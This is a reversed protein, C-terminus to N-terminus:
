VLIRMALWVALGGRAWWAITRAWNTFILSDIRALDYPESVLRGHLPGYWIVTAVWATALILGAVLAITKTAGDPARLWLGLALLVEAPAFLLLPIGVSRGHSSVYDVFELEAVKRFQPYVVFQITTMFGVMALTFVLHFLAIRRIGVQGFTCRIM